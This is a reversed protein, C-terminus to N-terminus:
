IENPELRTKPFLSPNTRSTLYSPDREFTYHRRSYDHCKGMRFGTRQTASEMEEITELNVGHQQNTKLNYKNKNHQKNQKKRAMNQKSRAMNGQM